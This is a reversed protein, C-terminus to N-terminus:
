ADKIQIKTFSSVIQLNLFEYRAEFFQASPRVNGVVAKFSWLVSFLHNFFHM